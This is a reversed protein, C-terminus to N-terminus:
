GLLEVAHNHLYAQILQAAAQLDDPLADSISFQLTKASQSVVLQGGTEEISLAARVMLEGDISFFCMQTNSADMITATPPTPIFEASDNAKIAAQEITDTKM